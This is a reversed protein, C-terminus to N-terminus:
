VAENTAVPIGYFAVEFAFAKGPAAEVVLAELPM